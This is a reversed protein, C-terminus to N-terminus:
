AGPPHFLAITRDTPQGIQIPFICEAESLAPSPLSVPFFSRSSILEPASLMKLEPPAPQNNDQQALMKKMMQCQGNCQLQPRAKNECKELYDAKRLLYDAYCIVQSFVQGSLLLM